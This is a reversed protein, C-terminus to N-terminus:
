KPKMENQLASINQILEKILENTKERDKELTLIRQEYKAKEETTVMDDDDIQDALGLFESYYKVEKDESWGMRYILGTTKPYRNLWYCCANHRIDYLTMKNYPKRAFSNSEGFLKGALNRLYKNFTAPKKIFLFDDPHLKNIKM